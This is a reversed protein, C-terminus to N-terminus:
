RNSILINGRIILNGGVLINGYSSYSHFNAPIQITSGSPIKYVGSSAFGKGSEIIADHVNLSSFGSDSFPIKSDVLTEEQVDDGSLTDNGIETGTLQTRAM